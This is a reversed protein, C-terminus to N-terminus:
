DVAGMAYKSNASHRLNLCPPYWDVSKVETDKSIGNTLHKGDSM